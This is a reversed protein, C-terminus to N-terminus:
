KEDYESALANAAAEIKQWCSAPLDAKAFTEDYIGAEIEGGIWIGGLLGLTTGVCLAVIWLIKANSSM